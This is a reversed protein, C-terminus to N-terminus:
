AESVKGNDLRWRKRAFGAADPDHTVLLVARGSQAFDALSQLVVRANDADLNGTPEDALILDPENLLARALAVRQREGVSLEGPLHEARNALGFREVLEQAKEQANSSSRALAPTLVNDSVSLYPVLHFQQFVFGVKEARFGARRDPDLAYPNRGAIEVTGGDPALLGGAALLLTTKGSGSAGQVAAFEGAWVELSVGGLAEVTNGSRRYSKTLNQIVLMPRNM